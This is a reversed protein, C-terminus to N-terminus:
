RSQAANDALNHQFQDGGFAIAKLVYDGNANTSELVATRDSKKPLQETSCSARAVEKSGSKFVLFHQEGDKVHQVRYDGPQLATTGVHTAHNLHLWWSKGVDANAADSASVGLAVALLLLLSAVKTVRNM